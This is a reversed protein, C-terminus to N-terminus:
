RSTWATMCALPSPPLGIQIVSNPHASDVSGQGCAFLGAPTLSASWALYRSSAIFQMSLSGYRANRIHNLLPSRPTSPLISFMYAKPAKSPALRGADSANGRERAKARRAAAGKQQGPYFADSVAKLRRADERRVLWAGGRKAAPLRGARVWGILTGYSPGVERSAQRLTLFQDLEAFEGDTAVKM